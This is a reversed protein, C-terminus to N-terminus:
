TVCLDHCSFKAYSFILKEIKIKILYKVKKKNDEVSFNLEVLECAHCILRPVGNDARVITM